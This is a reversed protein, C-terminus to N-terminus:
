PQCIRGFQEVEVWGLSRNTRLLVYNGRTRQWRAPEGASLRTLAQAEQTPTLRLPTEKQLIFGIRSRTHVGVHAPLSLLFVTFGLAAVAQHWTARRRRFIGPLLSAGIAFWFSIGALWAWWNAPLWSSVVEYWTLEPSELQATKRAFRLNTRASKNFPDLWAAQEWALIARGTGGRQWESNGLNHLAGSSPQLRASKRFSQAARLYDSSRYAETGEQFLIESSSAFCANADLAIILILIQLAGSRQHMARRWPSSHARDAERARAHRWGVERM